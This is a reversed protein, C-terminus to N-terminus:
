IFKIKLLQKELEQWENENSYNVIINFFV